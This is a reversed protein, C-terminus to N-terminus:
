SSIGALERVINAAVLKAKNPELLQRRFIAEQRQATGEAGRTGRYHDLWEGAGQVLWYGTGETGKSTEGALIGRVAARAKEVNKAALDTIGPAMPVFEQVFTEAQKATVKISLMETAWETYATFDARAGRVANRAEEIRDEWSARHVFTFVAGHQDAELEAMRYTNACVIRVSTPQLRAGGMGDHRATLGMYPLTLSADKGYRGKLQVPEDLYALAWTCKGGEVSGATDYKVEPLELVAEMIRGFDGHTIPEYKRSTCGLTKGFDDSRYIRQHEPMEQLSAMFYDLMAAAQEDRPATASNALLNTIGTLMEEDTTHRAYIPAAIPDWTLGAWERAQDWNEPYEQKLDELGHWSPTRVCYGTEFYHSM